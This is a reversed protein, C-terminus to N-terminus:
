AAHSPRCPQLRMWRDAHERCLLWILVLVLAQSSLCWKHTWGHLTGKHAQCTALIGACSRILAIASTMLKALSLTLSQQLCPQRHLFPLVTPM